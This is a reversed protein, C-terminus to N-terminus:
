KDRKEDEVRKELIKKKEEEYGKLGLTEIVWKEVAEEAEKDEMANGGDEGSGVGVGREFNVKRVLDRADGLSNVDLKYLVAGSGMMGFSLVNLTALSLAEFADLAGNVEPKHYVSSTYYSPITSLHRKRLARRTTLLSLAFFTM